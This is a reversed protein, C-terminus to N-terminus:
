TTKDKPATKAKLARKYWIRISKDEAEPFAAKVKSITDEMATGINACEYTLAKKTGKRIGTVEDKEAKPKKPEKPLKKVEPKMYEPLKEWEKFGGTYAMRLAPHVLVGEQLYGGKQLEIDRWGDFETLLAESQTNDFNKYFWNVLDPHSNEVVMNFPMGRKICERQLDRHKLNQLVRMVRDEHSQSFVIPVKRLKKKKTKVGM